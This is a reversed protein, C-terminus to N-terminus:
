GLFDGPNLFDGLNTFDQDLVSDFGGLDISNANALQDNLQGSVEQLGSFLDGNNVGNALGNLYDSYIGADGNGAALLNDTLNNSYATFQDTQAGLVDNLEDGTPAGGGGVGTDSNLIEAINQYPTQGLATIGADDLAANVGTGAGAVNGPNIEDGLVDTSSNNALAVAADHLSGGSFDSDTLGNNSLAAQIDAVSANEDVGGGTGGGANGFVDNDAGLVDQFGALDNSNTNALQTNLQGSVEDLGNLAAANNVDSNALGGIYDGFIANDGATSAQLNDTINNSFATFQDTQAGLLDTFATESPPPAGSGSVAGAIPANALPILLAAGAAVGLGVTTRRQLKKTM